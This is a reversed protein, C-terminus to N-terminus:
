NKDIIVQLPTGPVTLSVTEPASLHRTAFFGPKTRIKTKLKRQAWGACVPLLSYRL